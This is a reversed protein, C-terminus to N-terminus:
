RPCGRHRTSRTCPWRSVVGVSRSDPAMSPAPFLYRSVSRAACFSARSQGGICLVEILDRL